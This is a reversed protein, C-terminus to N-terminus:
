PEDDQGALKEIKAVHVATPRWPAWWPQPWISAGHGEPVEVQVRKTNVVYTGLALQRSQQGRAPKIIVFFGVVILVVGVILVAVWIWWAVSLATLAGIMLLVGLTVIAIGLM